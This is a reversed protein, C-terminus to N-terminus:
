PTKRRARWGVLGLGALLMAWEGPEPVATVNYATGSAFNASAGEPLAINVLNASNSFDLTSAGTGDKPPATCDGTSFNCFSDIGEGLITVGLGSMLYFSEGYTFTLTGQLTVHIAQGSGPTLIRDPTPFGTGTNGGTPLGPDISPIIGGTPASSTTPFLISTDNYPSAGLQYTAIPNVADMPWAYSGPTNFTLTNSALQSPHLSSTGLTYGLGGGFAGVDVTGDLQVTFYATSTGTGGTITVQDYWDSFGGASLINSPTANASAYARNSGLTTSASATYGM